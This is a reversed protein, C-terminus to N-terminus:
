IHLSGGSEPSLTELFSSVQQVIQLLESKGECFRCGAEDVVIIALTKAM